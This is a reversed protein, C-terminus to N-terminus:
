KADKESGSRTKGFTRHFAATRGEARRVSWAPDRLFTAAWSVRGRGVSCLVRVIWTLTIQGLNLQWIRQSALSAQAIINHRRVRHRSKPLTIFEHRRRARGLANKVTAM